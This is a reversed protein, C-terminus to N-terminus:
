VNKAGILRRLQDHLHEDSTPMSLDRGGHTDDPDPLRWGADYAARNWALFIAADRASAFGNPANRFSFFACTTEHVQHRVAEKKTDYMVGDSGGDSLRIAVYPSGMRTEYTTFAALGRVIDFARKAADSVVICESCLERGHQCREAV